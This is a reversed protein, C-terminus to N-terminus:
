TPRSSSRSAPLTSSTSSGPGLSNASPRAEKQIFTIDAEVGEVIGLTSYLLVSLGILTLLGLHLLHHPAGPKVGEM